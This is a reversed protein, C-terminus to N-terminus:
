SVRISFWCVPLEVEDAFQGLLTSKGYGPGATVLVIKGDVHQRLSDLLPRREVLARPL